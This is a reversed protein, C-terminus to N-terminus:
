VKPKKRIPFEFGVRVNIVDAYPSKHHPNNLRTMIMSTGRVNKFFRYEKKIGLFTGMVWQRESFDSTLKRIFPPVNTNMWELEFRPSFGKGIKYEAYMRPGYIRPVSTFGNYKTNYALRHNWGAGATLKGTFRYGAYSNFDVLVNQTKGQVQLAIGPLLREIFKKDRMENPRRKPIESLSNLSPYKRKLKSMKDMAEQLQQEKGAFHNVAQQVQQQAQGQLNDPTVPTKTLDTLTKDADPLKELGAASAAKSEITGTLQKADAVNGGAISQLDKTYSGVEGALQSVEGVKGLGDVGPITPLKGIEGVPTAVTTHLGDLNKLPNDPLNLEPINLDKVPLQFDVISKTIANAREGLQPPLGLQEIRQTTKAKLDQLNKDLSAVTKHSERQLSDLRSTYKETPLQLASLSDIAHQTTAKASELSSLRLQCDRKLSDSKTYFSQQLSDLNHDPSRLLSDAQLNPITLSDLRQASLQLSGLLILSLLLRPLM